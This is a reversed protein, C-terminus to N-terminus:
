KKLEYAEKFWTLLEKDIEKKHTLKITNHYRNASAQKVQKGKYQNFQVLVEKGIKQKLIILFL